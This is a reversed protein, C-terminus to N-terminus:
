QVSISTSVPLGAVASGTLPTYYGDPIDTWLFDQGTMLDVACTYSGVAFQATDLGFSFTRIGGAGIAYENGDSFEYEILAYDGSASDLGQPTADKVGNRVISYRINTGADEGILTRETGNMFTLDSVKDDDAFDGNLDAWRELADNDAGDRGADGATVKFTMKKIRIAGEPEAKLTFRLIEGDVAHFGRTPSDATKAATIKSFRTVYSSASNVNVPFDASGLKTESIVTANSVSAMQFTATDAFRVIVNQGYATGADRLRLTGFANISTVKDKVLPASMGTVTALRGFFDAAVSATAGASTTYVLRVSALPTVDGIVGITMAQLTFDDDKVDATLTGLHIERGTIADGGDGRWAFVATGTKKVTVAFRPERGGGPHMGTVNLRVGAANRVIVDATADEIDFAIRDPNNELQAVARIDGKVVLTSNSGPAIGYHLGTFAARGDFGVEVPGALFKGTSDYLSVTPVIDRVRTETGNDADGGASFGSVGEQEDIYGQVNVQEISNISSDTATFTFGSIPTAAAGLVYTVNGPTSAGAVQFSPRVIGIGASALDGSPFFSVAAGSGDVVETGSRVVTLRYGEGAPLDPNVAAKLTLMTEVGAPIRAQGRFVLTQEQDNLISTDLQVQGFPANGAADVFRISTFNARGSNQYVLGGQDLDDKSAEPVGTTAQFKLTLKRIVATSGSVARLELLAADSDSAVFAHPTALSLTPPISAAATKDSADAIAADAATIDPGDAYSSLDSVAITFEDRLRLSIKVDAAIRRKFAGEIRFLARDSARSVISGTPYVAANLASGEVYNVFFPDPVDDVRQNWNPGYLAAAVAEDAIWRLVGGPEVAFVKPVTAIKVLRTGPRARVNGGIPIAALEAASVTQIGSFDAYWTKYAAQNPFVYRKGDSGFYYVAPDAAIKILSGPAPAAQAQPPLFFVAAIALTIITRSMTM